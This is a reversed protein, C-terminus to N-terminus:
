RTRPKAKPKLMWATRVEDLEAQMQAIREFQIDTVKTFREALADFDAISQRLLARVEQM